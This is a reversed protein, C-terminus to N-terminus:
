GNPQRIRVWSCSYTALRAREERETDRHRWRVFEVGSQHSGSLQGAVALVKGVAVASCNITIRGRRYSRRDAFSFGGLPAKVRYHCVELTTLAM